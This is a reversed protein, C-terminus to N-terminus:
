IRNVCVIYCFHHLLYPWVRVIEYSWKPLSLPSTGSNHMQMAHFIFLVYKTCRFWRRLQEDSKVSKNDCLTILTVLHVPWIECAHSLHIGKDLLLSTQDARQLLMKSEAKLPDPQVSDRSWRCGTRAKFFRGGAFWRSLSCKAVLNVFM